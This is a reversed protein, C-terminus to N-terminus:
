NILQLSCFLNSYYLIWKTGFSAWCCREEGLSPFHAWPWRSWRPPLTDSQTQAMFLLWFEESLAVQHGHKKYGWSSRGPATAPIKFIVYKTKGKDVISTGINLVNGASDYHPHATALNIALYKRYDVQFIHCAGPKLFSLLQFGVFLQSIRPEFLHLSNRCM